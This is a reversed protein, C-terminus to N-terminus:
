ERRGEYLMDLIEAADLPHFESDAMIEEAAAHADAMRDTDMKRIVIDGGRAEVEVREGSRLGAAKVVELPLRLALNRGWRGLIAHAM